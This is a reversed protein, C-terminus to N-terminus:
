GVRFQAVRQNVTAGTNSKFTNEYELWDIAVETVEKSNRLFSGLREVRSEQYPETATVLSIAKENEKILQEIQTVVESPVRAVGNFPKMLKGIKKDMKKLASIADENGGLLAKHKENELQNGTGNFWDILGM